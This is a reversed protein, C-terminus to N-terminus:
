LSGNSHSSVKVLFNLWTSNDYNDVFAIAFPDTGGLFDIVAQKAQEKSVKRILLLTSKSGTVEQLM